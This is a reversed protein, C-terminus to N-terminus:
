FFPSWGTDEDENNNGDGTNGDGTNGDGTNGDGSGEYSPHKPDEVDPTGDNNDDEDKTDPTGDNDDDDDEKDVTGDNDTDTKDDEEDDTIFDEFPISDGDGTEEVQLGGEVGTSEDEKNSDRGCMVLALVIILVLVVVGIIYKIYKKNM